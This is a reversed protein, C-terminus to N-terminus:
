DVYLCDLNWRAPNNEIYTWIRGFDTQNRIVHDHYSRQWPSFGAEKTVLIKWSQIIQPVSVESNELLLLLHVHNPMIVSRQLQPIRLLYKEVTKGLPSLRVFVSADETNEVVQGFIAKKEKACATIFYAGNEQYDYQELRNRKRQPLVTM